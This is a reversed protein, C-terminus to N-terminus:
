FFDRQTRLSEGQFKISFAMQGLRDAVREGYRERVEEPTLNSSLFTPFLSSYRKELLTRIPYIPTGFNLIKEPEEGLDDVGLFVADKEVQFRDAATAAMDALEAASFLHVVKNRHEIVRTIARLLTTKGTGVHGWLFATTKGLFSEGRLWLSLYKVQREVAGPFFREMGDEIVIKKVEEMIETEKINM